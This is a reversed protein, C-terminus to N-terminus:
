RPRVVIPLSQLFHTTQLNSGASSLHADTPPLGSDSRPSSRAPRHLLPESIWQISSLFGTKKCIENYLIRYIAFSSTTLCFTISIKLNSVATATNKLITKSLYEDPALRSLFHIQRESFLLDWSTSQLHTSVWCNIVFPGFWFPMIVSSLCHQTTELSSVEKKKKQLRLSFNLSRTPERTIHRAYM